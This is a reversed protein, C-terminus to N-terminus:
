DFVKAFEEIEARRDADYFFSLQGGHEPTITVMKKGIRIRPAFAAHFRHVDAFGFVELVRGDFSLLAQSSARAELPAEPTTM